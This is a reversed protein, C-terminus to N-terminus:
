IAQRQESRLQILSRFRDLEDQKLTGQTNATALKHAMTVLAADSAASAVSEVFQFIYDLELETEKDSLIDRAHNLDDFFAIMDPNIPSMDAKRPGTPRNAEPMHSLIEQQFAGLSPIPKAIFGDAGADTAITSGNADASIGLITEVRQNSNSIESILDSGNGDPLGLDVILVSPRYMRLHKRASTICDARRLRAGSKMCLLRVAESSFRSDEVLLITVGLLPRNATPKPKLFFADLDDMPANGKMDM